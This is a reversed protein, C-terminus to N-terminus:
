NNRYSAPAIRVRRLTRMVVPVAHAEVSAFEARHRCNQPIEALRSDRREAGASGILGPLVRLGTEGHRDRRGRGAFRVDNARNADGGVASLVPDVILLRAGAMRAIREDLLAM